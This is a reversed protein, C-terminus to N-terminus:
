LVARQQTLKDIVMPLSGPMTLHGGPHSEITVNDNDAFIRQWEKLNSSTDRKYLLLDLSTEPTIREAYQGTEGGFLVKTQALTQLFQDTGGEFPFSHWYHKAVSGVSLNGLGRALAFPEGCVQAAFRPLDAWRMARPYCPAVAVTHVVEREFQPSLANFCMGIMAGRSEGTMFVRTYDFGFPPGLEDLMQHINHATNGLPYAAPFKWHRPHHQPEEPGVLVTPFGAEMFKLLAHKNHGDTGTFWSTTFVVPIDTQREAPEGIQVEYQIGDNMMVSQLYIDGATREEHDYTDWDDVQTYYLPLGELQKPYPGSFEAPERRSQPPIPFAIVEAM